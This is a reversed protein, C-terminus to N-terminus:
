YVLRARDFGPMGDKLVLQLGELNKPPPCLADTFTGIALQVSTKIKNQDVWTRISPPLDSSSQELQDIVRWGEAKVRMGKCPTATESSLDIVVTQPPTLDGMYLLASFYHQGDFRARILLPRRLNAVLEAQEQQSEKWAARLERDWRTGDYREPATILPQDGTYLHDIALALGITADSGVKYTILGIVRGEDDLLPGGSNGRTISLDIQIYSLGVSRRTAHGVIGQSMTFSMGLPAGVAYVRDGRQVSTSDGLPLPTIKTADPVDLLAADLREEARLLKARLKRGSELVVWLDEDREDCLVHQNTVVHTKTVFFGSGQFQGCLVTATAPVVRAALQRADLPHPEAAGAHAQANPAGGLNLMREFDWGLGFRLGAVGAALVLLAGLGTVLPTRTRARQPATDQWALTHEIGYGQLVEGIANGVSRTVNRLLVRQKGQLVDRVLAFQLSPFQECLAKAAGYVARQDALERPVVLDVHLDARCVYCQLAIDKVLEGCRPCPTRQEADHSM